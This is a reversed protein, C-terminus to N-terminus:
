SITVQDAKAGLEQECWATLEKQTIKPVNQKKLCNQHHQENNLTVKKMALLTIIVIDIHIFKV